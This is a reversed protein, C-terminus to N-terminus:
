RPWGRRCRSGSPRRARRGDACARARVRRLPVLSPHPHGPLAGHRHTERPLRHLGGPPGPRVAGAARPLGPRRGAVACSLERQGPADSPDHGAAARRRGPRRPRGPAPSRHPAPPPRPPSGRRISFSPPPMSYCNGCCSQPKSHGCRMRPSRAPSTRAPIKGMPRGAASSLWNLPMATNAPLRSGCRDLLRAPM